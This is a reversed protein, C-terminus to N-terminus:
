SQFSKISLFIIFFSSASCAPILGNVSVFIVLSSLTVVSVREFIQMGCIIGDEKCILDAEGIQNERMIANASVDESTVDERLASLILPDANLKLTAEDFM